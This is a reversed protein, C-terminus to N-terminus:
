AVYGFESYFERESTFVMDRLEPNSQKQDQKNIPSMEDVQDSLSIDWTESLKRFDDSISELKGVFDIRQGPAGIFRAFYDSVRTPYKTYVCNLYEDFPRSGCDRDVPARDPEWFGNM